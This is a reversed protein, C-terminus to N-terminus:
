PRLKNELLYLKRGTSGIEMVELLHYFERFAAEFHAEDYQDFVDKRHQLLLSVKEDHKPVFEILLFQGLSSLGEFLMDFPLNKGICLHHVLALAMVLDAQHRKSFRTREENNWGMDASPNMLDNVLATIPMSRAKSALYLKDIALHDSDTATVKKGKEAMLISFEGQNAGLDLVSRFSIKETLQVVANKKDDLYQGPLISDNYYNGWTSEKDGASLDSIGRHLHDIIRLMKAKSFIINQEAASKKSAVSLQLHVHLSSLTKWRSTWPLLKSCLSLPIGNPHVSLMRIMDGGAHQALLLPALFCECFQRYAVWPQSDDYIEFSLTDIFIPYQDTFVINYGTADKLVMGRDIATRQIQLTLLAADKLQSFSWEHPYNIGVLQAPRIIKYAGPEDPLEIHSILWNKKTIEDYLGSAMLHDYSQSYSANIQRYVTGDRMFIHGSPDRFSSKETRKMKRGRFSHDSIIGALDSISAWDWYQQLSYSSLTAAVEQTSM